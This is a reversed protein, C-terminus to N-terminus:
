NENLVLIVLILKTCIEFFLGCITKEEVLHLLHLAWPGCPQVDGAKWLDLDTPLFFWHFSLFLDAPLFHKLEIGNKSRIRLQWIPVPQKKRQKQLPQDPGLAPQIQSDLNPDAIQPFGSWHVSLLVSLSWALTDITILKFASHVVFHWNNQFSM